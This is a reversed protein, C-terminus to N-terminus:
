VQSLSDRYIKIKEISEQSFGANVCSKFITDLLKYKKLGGANIILYYFEDEPSRQKFKIYHYSVLTYEKMFDQNVKKMKKNKFKSNSLLLIKFDQFGNVESPTIKVDVYLIKNCLINIKERSFGIKLKLRGTEYEFNLLERRSSIIISILIMVEIVSLFSIYFLDFKKYYILFLPLIFFIFCMSLVFRKYSKSQKRIAKNINMDKM